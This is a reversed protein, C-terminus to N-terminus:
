STKVNAERWQIVMMSWGKACRPCKFEKITGDRLMVEVPVRSLWYPNETTHNKWENIESMKLGKQLM